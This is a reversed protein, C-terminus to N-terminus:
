GWGDEVDWCVVLWVLLESIPKFLLPCISVSYILNFIQEVAAKEENIYCLIYRKLQHIHKGRTQAPPICM